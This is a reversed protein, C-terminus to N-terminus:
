TNSIQHSFGFPLPFFILNWDDTLATEWILPVPIPLITSSSTDDQIHGFITPIHWSAVGTPLTYPRDMERRPYKELAPGSACGSLVTLASVIMVSGCLYVYRKM